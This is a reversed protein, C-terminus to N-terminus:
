APSMVISSLMSSRTASSRDAASIKLTGTVSMKISSAKPARIAAPRGTSSAAVLTAAVIPMMAGSEYRIGDSGVTPLMITSIPM